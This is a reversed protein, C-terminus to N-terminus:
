DTKYSRGQLSTSIKFDGLEPFSSPHHHHGMTRQFQDIEEKAVLAVECKTKRLAKFFVGIEKRGFIGGCMSLLEQSRDRTKQNMKTDANPGLSAVSM